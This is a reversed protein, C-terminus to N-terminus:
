VFMTGIGEDSLTEILISHKVNGNIIFVQKVGRRIAEVCCEVKPIMGGEIIGSKILGAAESVNVVSILTSEDDKERLIGLKDTMNILCKAGLEGAIKAAASDANINYANGKADCGVTAIVPICNAELAALVPQANVSTIEGVYGLEESVPVAELMHGDIGCMGMASGGETEIINVLDKNIKGALVMQVVDMTEADTKRLGNVFEAKKGLRALMDNIEPGGGHVLVVKVGIQRLLVLDKMVSAKMDADSMTSGGYKVVIVENAYKKIYPLAQALVEAKTKNDIEM